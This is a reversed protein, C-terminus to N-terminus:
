ECTPTGGASVEGRIVWRSMLVRLGRLFAHVLLGGNQPRDLHKCLKEEGCASELNICRM